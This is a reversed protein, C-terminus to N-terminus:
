ITRARVNRGEDGGQSHRARRGETSPSSMQVLEAGSCSVIQSTKGHDQYGKPRGSAKKKKNLFKDVEEMINTENNDLLWEVNAVRGTEGGLDHRSADKLLKSWLGAKTPGDLSLGSMLVTLDQKPQKSTKDVKKPRGGSSASEKPPPMNHAIVLTAQIRPVMNRNEETLYNPHTIAGYQAFAELLAKEARHVTQDNLQSPRQAGDQLAQEKTRKKFAPKKKQNDAREDRESQTLAMGANVVV